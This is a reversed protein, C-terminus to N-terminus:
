FIIVYYNCLLRNKIESICEERSVNEIPNGFKADIEDQLKAQEEPHTALVYSCYSLANSTTDYGALM